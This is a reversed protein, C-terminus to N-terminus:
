RVHSTATRSRRASQTGTDAVLSASSCPIKPAIASIATNRQHKASQPWSKVWLAKAVPPKKETVHRLLSEFSKSLHIINDNFFNISRDISLDLSLDISFFTSFSLNHSICLLSFLSFQSDCAIQSEIWKHITQKTQKPSKKVKTNRSSLGRLTNTRRQAWVVRHRVRCKWTKDLLDLQIEFLILSIGPLLRAPPNEIAELM